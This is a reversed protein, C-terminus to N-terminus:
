RSVGRSRAGSRGFARGRLLDAAITTPVGARGEVTGPDPPSASVRHVRTPM